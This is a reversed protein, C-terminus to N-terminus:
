KDVILEVLGGGAVSSSEYRSSSSAKKKARNRGIPREERIEEESDDAKDNLNFVVKHQSQPPKPLRSNKAVREKKYFNSMEVCKWAVHDKLINWCSELTFPHEYQAKYEALAKKYVNLDCSWSENRREVDDIIACFTGIRVGFGGRNKMANAKSVRKSVKKSKVSAIKGVSYDDEVLALGNAMFLDQTFYYDQNDGSTVRPLG